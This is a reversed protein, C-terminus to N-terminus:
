CHPVAIPVTVARAPQQRDGQVRLVVCTPEQLLIGGNYGTRGDPCSAVTVSTGADAIMRQSSPRRASRQPLGPRPTTRVATWASPRRPGSADITPHLSQRIAGALGGGFLLALV